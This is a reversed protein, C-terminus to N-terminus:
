APEFIVKIKDICLSLQIEFTGRFGVGIWVEGARQSTVSRSLAFEMFTPRKPQEPFGITGLEQLGAIDEAPKLGIYAIAVRHNELGGAPGADFKLSVKYRRQPVVFFRRELWVRAADTRNDVAICASSKGAGGVDSRLTFDVDEGDIRAWRPLWNDWGSNFTSLVVTDSSIQSPPSTNSKCSSVALAVVVGVWAATNGRM